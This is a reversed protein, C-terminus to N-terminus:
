RGTIIKLEGWYTLTTLFVSVHEMYLIKNGYRSFKIYGIPGNYLYTFAGSPRLELPRNERSAWFFKGNVITVLLRNKAVKDSSLTLRDTSDSGSTVFTSPIGELGTAFAPIEAPSPLVIDQSQVAPVPLALVFLLVACHSLRSVRQRWTKNGVNM